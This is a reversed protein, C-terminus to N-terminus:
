QDNGNGQGSQHLEMKRIIQSHPHLGMKRTEPDFVVKHSIGGQRFGTGGILRQGGVMPLVASLLILVLILAAAIIYIVPRKM